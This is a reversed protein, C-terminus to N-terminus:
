KLSTSKKPTDPWPAVDCWETLGVLKLVDCLKRIRWESTGDQVEDEDEGDEETSV